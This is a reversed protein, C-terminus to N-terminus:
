GKVFLVFNKHTSYQGKLGFLDASPNKVPKGTESDILREGDEDTLFKPGLNLARGVNGNWLPKMTQQYLSRYETLLRGAADKTSAQRSALPCSPGGSRKFRDEYYDIQEPDM